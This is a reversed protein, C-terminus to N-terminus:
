QVTKATKAEVKAVPGVRSAVAAVDVATVVEATM